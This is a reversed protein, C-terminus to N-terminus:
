VEDINGVNIRLSFKLYLLYKSQVQARQESGVSNPVCRLESLHVLHSLPIM